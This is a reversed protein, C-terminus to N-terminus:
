SIPLFISFPVPSTETHSDRLTGGAGKNLDRSIHKCLLQAKRESAVPSWVEIFLPSAIHHLSSSSLFIVSSPLTYIFVKQETQEGM